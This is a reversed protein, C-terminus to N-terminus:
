RGNPMVGEFVYLPVGRLSGRMYYPYDSLSRLPPLTGERGGFSGQFVRVVVQLSRHTATIGTPVRTRPPRLSLRIPREGGFVANEDSNDLQMHLSVESRARRRAAVFAGYSIGVAVAASYSKLDSGSFVQNDSRLRPISRAADERPRQTHLRAQRSQGKRRESIFMLRRHGRRRVDTM